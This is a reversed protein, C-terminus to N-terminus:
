IGFINIWFIPKMKFNREDRLKQDMFKREDRLKQNIIKNQNFDM